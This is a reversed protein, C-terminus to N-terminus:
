KTVRDRAITYGRSWLGFDVTGLLYPNAEDKLESGFMAFQLGVFYGQVAPEMGRYEELTILKNLLESEETSVSM